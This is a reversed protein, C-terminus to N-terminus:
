FSCPSNSLVRHQDDHKKIKVVHQTFIYLFVTKLFVGSVFVRAAYFRTKEPGYPTFHRQRGRATRGRLYVRFSVADHVPLLDNENDDGRHGRECGNQSAHEPYRIRGCVREAASRLACDGGIRPRCSTEPRRPGGKPSPLLARLSVEAGKSSPSRRQRM